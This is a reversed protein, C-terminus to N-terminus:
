DIRRPRNRWFWRLAIGLTGLMLAGKLWAGAPSEGGTLDLVYLLLTIAALLAAMQGLYAPWTVGAQLSVKPNAARVRDALAAAFPHFSAARDEFRGFGLYHTSPIAIRWGAKARIVLHHREGDLRSPDFRAQLGTIETYPLRHPLHERKPGSEPASSCLLLADPALQWRRLPAFANDRVEHSITEAEM